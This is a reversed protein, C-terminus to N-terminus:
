RIINLTTDAYDIIIETLTLDPMNEAILNAKEILDNEVFDLRFQVGILSLITQSDEVFNLNFFQFFGDSYSKHYYAIM